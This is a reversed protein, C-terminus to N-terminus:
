SAKHLLYDIRRPSSQLPLASRPRRKFLGLAGGGLTGLILKADDKGDAGAFAACGAAFTANLRTGLERVAPPGQDM